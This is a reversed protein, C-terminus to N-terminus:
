FLLVGSFTTFREPDSSEVEGGTNGVIELWVLEGATLSVIVTNGGMSWHDFQISDAGADVVSRDDVVLRVQTYGTSLKNAFHFTLLYIGTIPVTFQGTHENYAHGRNTLIRNCKITHGASVHGLIHDLYASFAVGEDAVGRRQNNLKVENINVKDKSFTHRSHLGNQRTRWTNAHKLKGDQISFMEKLVNTEKENTKTYNIQHDAVKHLRKSNEATKVFSNAQKQLIRKMETMENVNIKIQMQQERIEDKLVTNEKKLGAIELEQQHTTGKLFSIEEKFEKLKLGQELAMDRMVENEEKIDALERRQQHMAEKLSNFDAVFDLKQAIEDTVQNPIKKIVQHDDNNFTSSKNWDKTASAAVILLIFVFLKEM